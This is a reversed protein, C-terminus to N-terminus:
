VIVESPDPWHVAQDKDEGDQVVGSEIPGEQLTGVGRWEQSNLVVWYSLVGFCQVVYVTSRAM